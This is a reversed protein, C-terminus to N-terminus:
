NIRHLIPRWRDSTCRCANKAIRYGLRGPAAIAPRPSVRARRYGPVLSTAIHKRAVVLLKSWPALINSWPINGIDPIVYWTRWYGTDVPHISLCNWKIILMEVGNQFVNIWRNRSIRRFINRCIFNDLPTSINLNVIATKLSSFLPYRVLFYKKM